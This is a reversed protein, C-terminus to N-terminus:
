LNAAGWVETCVDQKTRQTNPRYSSKTEGADVAISVNWMSTGYPVKSELASMCKDFAENRSQAQLVFDWDSRENINVVMTRLPARLGGNAVAKYALSLCFGSGLSWSEPKHINLKPGNDVSFDAAFINRNLNTSYYDMCQLVLDNSDNVYFSFERKDDYTHATVKVFQGRARHPRWNSRSDPRSTPRGAMIGEIDLLLRDIQRLDDDSLRDVERNLRRQLLDSRDLIESPSQAQASLSGFLGSALLSLVVKKV